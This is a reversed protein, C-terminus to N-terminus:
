GKRLPFLFLVPLHRERRSEEDLNRERSKLLEQLAILGLFKQGIREV